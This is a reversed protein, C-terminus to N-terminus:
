IGIVSFDAGDSCKKKDNHFYACRNINDDWAACKNEICETGPLLDNNSSHSVNSSATNRNVVGIAPEGDFAKTIVLIKSLPCWKKNNM